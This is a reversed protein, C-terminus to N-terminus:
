GSRRAARLPADDSRDARRPRLHLRADQRGAVLGAAPRRLLRRHAPAAARERPRAPLPGDIAASPAPSPSPAATRRGPPTGSGGVGRPRIAGSSGARARRRPHRARQRGQRLRRLRVERRRAVLHRGLRPLAPRRLAPRRRGLRAQGRDRRDHRRGPLPRLHVPRRTSLFAVKRATRASRGPSVYTDRRADGKRCCRAPRPGRPTPAPADVVPAYASASPPTGTRPSSSPESGLVEELAGEVGLARAAPSSAASSGTAGAAASTPGSPTGGAIPSTARIARVHKQLDPLDDRVLADRLWMATQPSERGLSLYEALGEIFWLPLRPAPPRRRGPRRAAGLLIEYQFVHVLEHGLVHDTDAYYGTLPLVVRTRLAETFGGTGEGILGGISPRRSSTPTTPTSSSAAQARRVRASSPALAARVLARGHAGADRVAAGGGPLLPHRLARDQAGALRVAGVAGQQPRLVPRLRAAPSSAFLRRRPPAAGAPLSVRSTAPSM